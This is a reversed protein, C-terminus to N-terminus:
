EGGGELLELPNEKVFWHRSNINRKAAETIEWDAGLSEFVCMKLYPIPICVTAGNTGTFEIHTKM